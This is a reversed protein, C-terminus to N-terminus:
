TWRPPDPPGPDGDGALVLLGGDDVGGFYEHPQRRRGTTRLSEFFEDPHGAVGTAALSECLLTSGSRPTACVLYVLTPCLTMVSLVSERDSYVPVTDGFM